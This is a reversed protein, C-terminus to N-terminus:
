PVRELLKIIGSIRLQQSPAALAREGTIAVNIVYRELTQRTVGAPLSTLDGSLVRGVFARAGDVNGGFM